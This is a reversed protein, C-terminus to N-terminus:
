VHASINRISSSCLAQVLAESNYYIVARLSTLEAKRGLVKAQIHTHTRCASTDEQQACCCLTDSQM